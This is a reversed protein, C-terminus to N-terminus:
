RIVKFAVASNVVGNATVVSIKGSTASSPVTASLHSGVLTFAAPVDNFSVSTAASFDPGTLTIRSGVKGSNPTARVFPPVGLSVTYSIGWYYLGGSSTVGDLLGNTDQILGGMPLAGDACSAQSCFSYVTSFKGASTFRFITGHSNSGGSSTTGYLNGDTAQIVGASPGFGDTCNTLACFSYLTTLKGAPTIRFLTGRKHAGGENATGYFNGDTAQTLGGIPLAGDRCNTLACFSYLTILEGQPTIKFVTGANRNAGGGETVGYLSGDAAQLLPGTPLYGDACNALACFNYLTTFKGAPTVRFITGYNGHTGGQTTTGCLNGDTAQILGATPVGGDAYSFTHLTKLPGNKNGWGYEFVTGCGYLGCPNGNYPNGGQTTGYLNGNTAQLLASNPIEGDNCAHYPDSCFSYIPAAYGGGLFYITGCGWQSYLGCYGNLGGQLSTGEFGGDFDELLAAQPNIVEGEFSVGVNFTQASSDRAAAICVAFFCLLKAFSKM